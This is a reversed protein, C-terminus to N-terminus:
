YLIKHVEVDVLKADVGQVFYIKVTYTKGVSINIPIKDKRAFGETTYIEITSNHQEVKITKFPIESDIMICNSEFKIKWCNKSEKLIQCSLDLIHNSDDLVTTAKNLFKYGENYHIYGLVVWCIISACLLAQYLKEKDM